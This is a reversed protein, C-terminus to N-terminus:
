AGEGNVLRLALAEADVRWLHDRDGEPVGSQHEGWYWRKLKALAANYAYYEPGRRPRSGNSSLLVKAATKANM